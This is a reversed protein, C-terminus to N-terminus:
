LNLIVLSIYFIILAPPIFGFEIENLPRTLIGQEKKRMDTLFGHNKVWAEKHKDNTAAHRHGWEKAAM